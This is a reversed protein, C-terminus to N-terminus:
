SGATGGGVKSDPPDCGAAMCRPGALGVDDDVMRGETVYIGAGKAPGLYDPLGGRDRLSRPCEVM